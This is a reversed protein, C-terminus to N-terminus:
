QGKTDQIVPAPVLFKMPRLSTESDMCDIKSHYTVISAALLKAYNHMTLVKVVAPVSHFLFIYDHSAFNLYTFNLNDGFLIFFFVFKDILLKM